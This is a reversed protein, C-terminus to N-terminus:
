ATTVRKGSLARIPLGHATGPVTAALGPSTRVRQTVPNPGVWGGAAAPFTAVALAGVALGTVTATPFVPTLTIPAATVIHSGDAQILDCDLKGVCNTQAVRRNHGADASELGGGPTLRYMAFGLSEAEPM